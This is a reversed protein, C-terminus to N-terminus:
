VGCLVRLQALWFLFPERSDTRCMNEFKITSWWLKLYSLFPLCDYPAALCYYALGFVPFHETQVEQYLTNMRQVVVLEGSDCFFFSCANCDEIGADM